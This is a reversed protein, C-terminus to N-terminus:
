SLRVHMYSAMSTTHKTITSRSNTALKRLAKTSEDRGYDKKNELRTMADEIHNFLTNYVEYVHHVTPGRHESLCTTYLWFEYLLEILYEVHKWEHPALQLSSIDDDTWNIIFAQIASQLKLARRLM